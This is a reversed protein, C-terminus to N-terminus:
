SILFLLVLLWQVILALDLLYVSHYNKKSTFLVSKMLVLILVTTLLMGAKVPISYPSFAILFLHAIGLLYALNIAAQEGVITPLTKLNYKTDQEIDRIDFPLTCVLLFLIKVLGLYNATFWNISDGELYLEVVPLGVSSLSWVVAIYFLKLGPVQRLGRWEGNFRVFPVAYAISILGIFGLYVLTYLKIQTLAYLLLCVSIGSNIWLLWEHKFVWRTRLYPSNEPHAPKSLFLSLNYLLLTTTGEILLIASNIPYNLVHYTLACQTVAALAILLNSHVFFHYITRIFKMKNYCNYSM